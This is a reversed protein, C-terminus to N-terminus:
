AWRLFCSSAPLAGLTLPSLNVIFPSIPYGYWHPTSTLYATIPPPRYKLSQNPPRVNGDLPNQLFVRPFNIHPLRGTGFHILTM